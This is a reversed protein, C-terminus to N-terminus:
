ELYEKPGVWRHHHGLDDKAAPPWGHKVAFLMAERATGHALADGPSAALRGDAKVYYWSKSLAYFATPGSM